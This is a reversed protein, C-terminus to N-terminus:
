SSEVPFAAVQERAEEEDQQKKEAGMGLSTKLMMKASESDADIQKEVKELVKEVAQCCGELMGCWETAAESSAFWIRRNHIKQQVVNIDSASSGSNATSAGSDKSATKSLKGTEASKNGMAPLVVTSNLDHIPRPQIPFVEPAGIVNVTGDRRWNKFFVGEYEKVQERSIGDPLPMSNLVQHVIQDAVQTNTLHASCRGVTITFGLAYLKVKSTSAKSSASLSQGTAGSRREREKAADAVAVPNRSVSAVDESDDILRPNNKSGTGSSSGSGKITSRSSSSRSKRSGSGSGSQSLTGKNDEGCDEAFESVHMVVEGADFVQMANVKTNDQPQTLPTGMLGAKISQATPSRKTNPNPSNNDTLKIKGITESNWWKESYLLVAKGCCSMWIPQSAMKQRINDLPLYKPYSWYPGFKVDTLVKKPPVALIVQKCTYSHTPAVLEGAANTLATTAKKTNTIRDLLSTTTIFVRSKEPDCHQTSSSSPSATTGKKDKNEVHDGLMNDLKIDTSSSSASTSSSARGDDKEKSMKMMVNEEVCSLLQEGMKIEVKGEIAKRLKKVLREMGGEVREEGTFSGPQPVTKVQFEDLLGKIRHQEEPWVWTAGMDLNPASLFSKCRGGLSSPNQEILLIKLAPKPKVANASADDGGAVEKDQSNRQVLRYASLLGSVGGGVIVIDYDNAAKKLNSEKQFAETDFFFKEEKKFLDYSYKLKKQQLQQLQLLYASQKKQQASALAREKEFHAKERLKSAFSSVSSTASLAEQPTGAGSSSSLKAKANVNNQEKLQHRKGEKIEKSLVASSASASSGVSSRGASISASHGSHLLGAAKAAKHFARMDLVDAGPSAPMSPPFFPSVPTSSGTTGAPSAAATASGSSGGATASLTSAYSMTLAVQHQFLAAHVALDMQEQSPLMMHHPVAAGPTATQQELIPPLPLPLPPSIPPFTMGLQGPTTTTAAAAAAATAAAYYQDEFSIHKTSSSSAATKGLALKQQTSSGKAKRTKGGAVPSAFSGASSHPSTTTSPYYAAGGSSMTTSFTTTDPRATSRTTDEGATTSPTQDHDSSSSLDLGPPASVKKHSTTSGTPTTTKRFRFTTVAQKTEGSQEELEFFKQSSSSSTSGGKYNNKGAVVVPEQQEATEKNGKGKQAALLATALQDMLHKEHTTTRALESSTGRSIQESTCSGGFSAVAGLSSSKKSSRTSNKDQKTPEQPEAEAMTTPEVKPTSPSMVLEELSLVQKRQGGTTGGKNMASLYSDDSSGNRSSASRESHGAVTPLVAQELPLVRKRPGAMPSPLRNSAAGHDVRRPSSSSPMNCSSGQSFQQQHRYEPM